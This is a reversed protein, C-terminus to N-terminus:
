EFRADNLRWYTKTGKLSEQEQALDWPTVGRGDSLAANAGGDLLADIVTASSFRALAAHLPTRGKEDRLNPDAGADILWAVTGQNSAKFLPTEGKVNRSNPDAGSQVLADFVAPETTKSGAAIHFPTNGDETRANADAGRRILLSILKPNPKSGLSASHLPTWGSEQGANVEAGRDILTSVLELDGSFEARLVTNHLPTNGYEGRASPDAGAEMLTVADASNEVSHLPTEGAVDRGNPDAGGHILTAIVSPDHPFEAAVHLATSLGRLGRLAEGDLAYLYDSQRDSDLRSPSYPFTDGITWSENIRVNADAGGNLLAAIVDPNPNAYTAAHLPTWGTTTKANANAGGELLAFIVLPNPNGFAACHLPTRGDGIRVKSCVGQCVGQPNSLHRRLLDTSRAGVWVDPNVGGDLLATIISPNENAFAAMHLTTWGSSTEASPDLGQDILALIEDPDSGLLAATHMDTWGQGALDSADGGNELLVRIVSIVNSIRGHHDWGISFQTSAAQLPTRGRDDTAVADAGHDLLLTISELAGREAAVHLASFGEHGGRLNPDAGEGLLIAMLEVGRRKHAAVLLPTATAGEIETSQNADAGARLLVEIVNPDKGYRVAWFLPTIGDTSLAHVDAGTRLCDTVDKATASKFYAETNWGECDPMDVREKDLSSRGYLGLAIGGLVVISIVAVVVLHRSQM